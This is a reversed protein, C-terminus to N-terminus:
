SALYLFMAVVALEVIAFAALTWRSLARRGIAYAAFILPVILPTLMFTSGWLVMFIEARSVGADMAYKNLVPVIGGACIAGFATARLATSISFQLKM